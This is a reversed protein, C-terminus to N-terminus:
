LLTEPSAHAAVTEASILHHLSSCISKMGVVNDYVVSTDLNSFFHKHRASKNRSVHMAYRMAPLVFVHM